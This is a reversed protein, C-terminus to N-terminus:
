PPVRKVKLFALPLVWLVLLKGALEQATPAILPAPSPWYFPPTGPACASSAEKEEDIVLYKALLANASTAVNPKICKSLLSNISFRLKDGLAPTLQGPGGKAILMYFHLGWPKCKNPLLPVLSSSIKRGPIGETTAFNFRDHFEDKGMPVAVIILRMMNKTEPYLYGRLCFRGCGQGVFDDRSVEAGDLKYSITITDDSVLNSVLSGRFRFISLDAIDLEMMASDPADRWLTSGEVTVVDKDLLCGILYANADSVNTNSADLTVGIYCAGLNNFSGIKKLAPIAANGLGPTSLGELDTTSLQEKIRPNCSPVRKPAMNSFVALMSFFNLISFIICISQVFTQSIFSLVIHVQPSFIFYVFFCFFSKTLNLNSREGGNNPAM